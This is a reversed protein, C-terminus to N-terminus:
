IVIKERSYRGIKQSKLFGIDRSSRKHVAGGAGIRLLSIQKEAKLGIPLAKIEEDASALIVPADNAKKLDRPQQPLSRQYSDTYKILETLVGKLYVSEEIGELAASVELKLSAILEEAEFLDGDVLRAEGSLWGVTGIADICNNLLSSILIIANDQIGAEEDLIEIEDIDTYRTTWGGRALEFRLLYVLCVIDQSTFITQLALTIDDSPCIYLKSLALSLAAGRTGSGPGLQYEALELDAEAEEQLKAVQEEINEDDGHTLFGQKTGPNDGLLGLSEMLKRIACLLEPAGLYNKAVVAYLLDMDPDIELLANVLQGAPISVFSVGRVRLAAEINAVTMYGNSTLWMFTNLPYFTISLSFENGENASWSFIKSLAFIVWRRDVDSPLIRRKPYKQSSIDRNTSVDMTDAGNINPPKSQETWHAGLQHEIRRDFELEDCKGSVFLSELDAVQEDWPQGLGISGPLFEDLTALGLKAKRFSLAGERGSRTQERAPCGLSDILLGAARPKGHRDQPGEVQVGVLDNDMIAMAAGLKPFYAVFKCVHSSNGDEDGRKRKLSENPSPALQIEALKSQYRPNYVTISNKSSIMVATNSLRLFSQAGPSKIKTQEKPLTDSLDFTTLFDNSLQQLIGTSVQISFAAKEPSTQAPIETTLLSDVSHKMGKAFAATRRPLSVIHLTRKFSGGASKTVIVLIEPNFGDEVIEQPFLALVDQRGKLIGQSASYANTLQAFEVKSNKITTAADRFLAAAPSTWKEDLSDGEYCQVEGNERVAILDSVIGSVGSSRSGTITGLYVIPSRSNEVKRSTTSSQAPAMEETSEHFLTIEAQSGATSVYTRREIKSKSIRTRISSPPCTFSSQPPLAYSTLLRSSSIDYLNIGEGDIGVALESRKRMKAGPAGGYIEAVVYQGKAHDIPQPLTAVVYPKQLLFRSAM